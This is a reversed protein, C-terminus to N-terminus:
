RGEQEIVSEKRQEPLEEASLSSNIQKDIESRFIEGGAQMLEVPIQDSGPSQHMKLMAVAVEIV